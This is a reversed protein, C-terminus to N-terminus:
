GADGEHDTAVVADWLSAMQQGEPSVTQRRGDRKEYTIDVGFTSYFGAETDGNWDSGNGLVKIIKAAENDEHEQVWALVRSEFSM